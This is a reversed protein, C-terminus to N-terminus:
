PATVPLAVPSPMAPPAAGGMAPPVQGPIAPPQQGQQGMMTNLMANPDNANKKYRDPDGDAFEDIVFDDVVNQQNTYPAVRPDALMTFALMKQQKDNGMSKDLIRDADIWMAFQTRAFKYPNVLWIRQDTTHGGAKDYLGWEISKKDDETLERGMLADSFIVRNTIKKGKEQGKAIVAKFKLRPAEPVTADIEGVTTNAIICDMTLEGVQTVLDAITSGFVGLIVRAQQQAQVVATATVGPMTVGGSSTDQTSLSMDAEQKELLQYAAQINPGLSYPTATAGAPMGVVAGPVMVTSDVKAVGSLFIPKIIDLATGDHIWAHIQNLSRDDWYEKFAASKGYFFRGTPDIPEFYSKAFPYIPMTMYENNVTTMRRHKFPNSNYIDEENGMFVDGVWKVELDEGRYYFTAEQVYNRDAETWDIDYLTQNEQGTLLVRTKGATVYDFRDKGDADIHKGANEARAQDYPIRRVRILYPARQIPGTYFDGVMLEDIPLIHLNLGSLIEDVAQVVTYTGDAARKKIRQMARVYEVHVIIAPNVLATLVMFLFKMEYDAKRLHEEVLIRMVRATMKDEEDQDNTAMVFPYLMAALLHALIGIIKNRATNKRGRWRWRKHQPVWEAGVFAGFTEQDLRTRDLLSMGDFEDFSRHQLTYAVQYDQLCRAYLKLTDGQPQYASQALKQGNGDVPNGDNDTVVHGIM